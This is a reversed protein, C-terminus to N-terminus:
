HWWVFGARLRGPRFRDFLEECGQFRGEQAVGQAQGTIGVSGLVDDLFREHLQMCLKVLDALWPSPEIASHMVQGQVMAPPGAPGEGESRGAVFVCRGVLSVVSGWGSGSSCIARQSPM